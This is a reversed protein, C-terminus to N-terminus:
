GNWTALKYAWAGLGVVLLALLTRGNVAGLAIHTSRAGRVATHLGMWFATAVGLSLLMGLPQTAAAEMLSCDASHAFATTIGCTPCPQDFLAVWTCPPLGLQEHTGHGDGSPDMWAAVGLVGLCALAFVGSGIREESTARAAARPKSSPPAPASM